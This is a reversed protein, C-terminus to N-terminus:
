KKRFFYMILLISSVMYTCSNVICAGTIGWKSILLFSLILTVFLGAASKIILINLKGTASLFNGYVNSIAIALIGPSMLLIVSKVPQFESGFIWVFLNAPLLSVIAICVSSALLSIYSVKATEKRSSVTDGTQLVNSYQVVSISKSFIWIAEAVSVGISFVGVSQIGALYFLVYMSFRYNLFQLLNSLETKWGFNFTQRITERDLEFKSRGLTKRTIVTALVFILVLSILQAYFYSYYSFRDDFVYYSLLMFVFLLLPQLLVILNYYPIKQSGIFLFSHFVVFGFVVSIIYLLLSLDNWGNWLSILSAVIGSVVAVWIYAQTTLKSLGTKKLYYSVSSSTFINNFMAIIGLNAAFLTVIGKGEANWRRAVFVMIAFNLLLIGGKVIITEIINKKLSFTSM